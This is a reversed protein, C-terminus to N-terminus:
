YVLATYWQLYKLGDPNPSTNRFTLPLPEYTAADMVILHLHPTGGVDLGSAGSKAIVQGVEVFDNLKVRMSGKTLHVYAAKTGDSHMIHIKNTRGRGNFDRYWDEIKVVWGERVATVPSGIDMAFDFAYRQGGYHTLDTCNGQIVRYQNGVPYPLVYLSTKWWPYGECVEAELRSPPGLMGRGLGAAAATDPIFAVSVAGCVVLGTWLKRTGVM